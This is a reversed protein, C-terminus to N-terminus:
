PRTSGAKFVDNNFEVIWNAFAGAANGVRPDIGVIKCNGVLTTASTQNDLSCASQGTTVSGATYLFNANNGVAAKTLPTGSAGAASTEQITFRTKKDDQVLAVPTTGAVITPAGPWYAYAFQGAADGAATRYKCGYFVGLVATSATARDIVGATSLSVPDGNFITNTVGTSLPYETLVGTFGGGLGTNYPQFGRPSNTGYTM